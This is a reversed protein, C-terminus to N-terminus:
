SCGRFCLIKISGEVSSNMFLKHLMLVLAIENLFDEFLGFSDALSLLRELYDFLQFM